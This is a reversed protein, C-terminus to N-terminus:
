KMVIKFAVVPVEQVPMKFSKKILLAGKGKKWHLKENSGLLSM